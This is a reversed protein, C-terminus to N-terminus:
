PTKRPTHAPHHSATQERSAAAQARDIIELLDEEAIDEVRDMEAIAIRLHRAKITTATTDGTQKRSWASPYRHRSLLNNFLLACAVLVLANTLVPLLAYSFGLAQIDDGGSVALLATAAGPPHLCRLYYMATLALGLAASGALWPTPLQVVCAVGVIASIVQGGIAPWPQSLTAHPVAFLLIAAAASPAITALATAPGVLLISIWWCVAISIMAALGAFLREGHSVRFQDAGLWHLIRQRPRTM